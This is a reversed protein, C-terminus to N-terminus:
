PSSLRRLAERKRRALRIDHTELAREIHCAFKTCIGWLSAGTIHDATCGAPCVIDDFCYMCYHRHRLYPIAILKV